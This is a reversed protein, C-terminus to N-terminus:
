ISEIDCAHLTHNLAKNKRVKTLGIIGFGFPLILLITQSMGLRLVLWSM